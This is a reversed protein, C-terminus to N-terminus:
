PQFLVSHEIRNKDRYDTFNEAFHQLIAIRKEVERLLLCGGDSTVLGGNFKAVIEKRGLPHFMDYKKTRETKM